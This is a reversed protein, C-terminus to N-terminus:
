RQLSKIAQDIQGSWKEEIMRMLLREVLSSQDAQLVREHVKLEQVSLGASCTDCHEADEPNIHGCLHCKKSPIVAKDDEDAIGYVQRLARDVDLANERVYTRPMESGIRWGFMACLQQETLHNALHSARSHRLCHPSIRKDKIGALQVAAQLQKCAARYQLTKGHSNLFFPVSPDSSQPHTARWRTVYDRAWGYLHLTRRSTKSRPLTIIYGHGNKSIDKNRLALAEGVRLGAEYVVAIFVKYSLHPTAHVVALVQEQTLTDKKHERNHDRRYVYKKRGMLRKKVGSDWDEGQREALWAYVKTFRKWYDQRTPESWQSQQLGKILGLADKDTLSPITRGLEHIIGLLAKTAFRYKEVSGAHLKNMTAYDHIFEEVLAFDAQQAETIATKQM